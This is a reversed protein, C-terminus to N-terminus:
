EEVVVATGYAFDDTNMDGSNIRVNVVANAGMEQAAAVMSEIADKGEYGTGQVLGVVRVIKKGEISPTTVLLM